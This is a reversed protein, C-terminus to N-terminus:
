PYNGKDHHRNFFSVSHSFHPRAAKLRNTGTWAKRESIGEYRRRKVDDYNDLDNAFVDSCVNLLYMFLLQILDNAFILYM